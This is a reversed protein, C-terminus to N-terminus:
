TCELCVDELFIGRELCARQGLQLLESDAQSLYGGGGSNLCFVFFVGVVRSNM